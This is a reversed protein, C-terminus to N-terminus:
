KKIFPVKNRYKGGEVELWYTGPALTEIRIGANGDSAQASIAKRGKSDWITIIDLGSPNTNEWFLQESAPNPYVKVFPSDQIALPASSTTEILRVLGLKEGELGARTRTLITITGPSEVLFDQISVANSFFND